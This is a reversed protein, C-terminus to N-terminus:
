AVAGSSRDTLAAARGTSILDAPDADPHRARRRLV